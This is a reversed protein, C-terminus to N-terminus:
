PNDEVPQWSDDPDYQTMATAIEATKEGLDKQFVIGVQNVIFTMVGSSRYHAPYAVLAFGGTMHGDVIYSRAGEPAHPGQATLIRFFYGHFPMPEANPDKHTYGESTAVAVLTGMPSEPENGSVEWYLGDRKGPQSHFSQAYERMGTGRDVSVYERQADVYGHCVAITRLENRGIRRNLIEEKGAATDFRWGADDRVLPIPFSEDEKGIHIIVAKDGVKVLETRAATQAVFRKLGERDAVEDGSSVLDAADSGFIALLRDHDHAKAADILAQLALKPSGFQRQGAAVPQPGILCLLLIWPAVVLVTAHVPVRRTRCMTHCM